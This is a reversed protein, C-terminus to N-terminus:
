SARPGGDLSPQGADPGIARLEAAARDATGGFAIREWVAAGAGGADGSLARAGGGASSGVARAAAAGESAPGPSGAAAGDGAAGECTARM